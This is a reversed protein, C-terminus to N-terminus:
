ESYAKKHRATTMSTESPTNEHIIKDYGFEIEDKAKFDKLLLVPPIYNVGSNLMKKAQLKYNYLQHDIEKNLRRRQNIL